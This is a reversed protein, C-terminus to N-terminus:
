RRVVTAGRGSKTVHHHEAFRRVVPESQRQSQDTFFDIVGFITSSYRQLVLRGVSQRHGTEGLDGAVSEVGYRARRVLQMCTQKLLCLVMRQCRKNRSNERHVLCDLRSQSFVLLLREEMQSLRQAQM